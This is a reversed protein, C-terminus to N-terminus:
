QIKEGHPHNKDKLYFLGSSQIKNLSFHPPTLLSASIFGQKKSFEGSEQQATDM